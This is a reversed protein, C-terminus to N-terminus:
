VPRLDNPSGAQPPNEGDAQCKALTPAIPPPDPFRGPDMFHPRSVDFVDALNWANADRRTLAPLNWRHEIFSLLSTHDAVVHSVYGPRAWPSVVILPVRFGYRDYGGPLTGGEGKLDPPIDDPAIAAPPPVHDYYGGHEDYTIFLALSPWQPSATCAGVVSALFNEGYAADQPNEESQYHYNPEVVSVHPLRGAAADSFFQSNKVCRAAQLPNDRVNPLYFPSPSNDYYDLWSVKGADLRDFITGNAAAVTITQDQDSIVGSATAAFLFRRNPETQCLTSCFYRDSVPFQAALGYTFPLDSSDLYGMPTNTGVNTVFGDNRGGDFQRHSSDWNQTLGTSACADPLHFATVPKGNRDPNSATPVRGDGPLGDVGRRAPVQYPLMGLINDFSHNELMLIVVTDVQAPLGPTGIPESPNPLSDPQRPRRHRHHRVHRAPRAWAPVAVLGSGAVAGAALLSRRTLRAATM